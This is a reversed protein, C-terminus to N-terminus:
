GRPCSGPAPHHHQIDETESVDPMPVPDEWGNKKLGRVSMCPMVCQPELVMSSCTSGKSMRNLGPANGDGGGGGVMRGACCFRWTAAHNFCSAPRGPGARRLVADGGSSPTPVGAQELTAALEGLTRSRAGSAGHMWRCSGNGGGGRFRVHYNRM